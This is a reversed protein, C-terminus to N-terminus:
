SADCGPGVVIQEPCERVKVVTRDRMRVIAGDLWCGFSGIDDIFPFVTYGARDHLAIVELRKNETTLM